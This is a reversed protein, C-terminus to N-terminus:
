VHARGIKREIEEPAVKIGGVNIVDDARGLYYLKGDRIEGLDSTVLWGEADVLSVRNGNRLMEHAVNSGRIRVRGDAAIGIEIDGNPEGVSDLEELTARRLELFTARSAETLGYHQVITANPFLELMAAKEDRGMPQSGIEIWKVKRGVASFSDRFKLVMRWLSPVASISNIEDNQLMRVIEQINFGAAPIYVAGGAALVARCRAFGFSHYVPVGVYERISGDMRMKELLRSVTSTLNAHTLLIGKAEGETGSTFAVQAIQPGSSLPMADSLWGSDDGPEVIDRIGCAQIRLTDGKSRLPVVVKGESALQLFRRVYDPSNKSVLGVVAKLSNM